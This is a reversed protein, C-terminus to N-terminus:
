SSQSLYRTITNSPTESNPKIRKQSRQSRQSTPTKRKESAQPTVACEQSSLMEKIAPKSLCTDIHENIKRQDTDKLPFECVPCRLPMQSVREETDHDTLNLFCSGASDNLSSDQTESATQLGSCQVSMNLNTSSTCDEPATDGLCSDIHSNIDESSSMPLAKQCVPCTIDSKQSLFASLTPQVASKQTNEEVLGALRVGMLRLRLPDPHLSDIEHRLLRFAAQQVPGLERTPLELTVSRTMVDFSVTKLKLTVVKGSIKDEALQECLRQCLESCKCFLDSPSSMEAFTEEVSKSKQSSDCRVLTSGLGLSVRLYFHVSSPSFFHGILGRKGWLDGCTRVGLCQLLQEQVAGIGPVKRISLTDVFAKVVDRDGILRYQDNPKRIDSCVKALFTNPAIGASATLGTAKFIEHRIQKVTAEVIDDATVDQNLREVLYETIDLYAEDLSVPMLNPDYHVLIRRIDASVATYKEFNPPVIVLSPCLKKAIFGPMAARVGFKRAEYNSTSLMGMSGVAMPVDRLAPNDRMEVAAYYADMDIHVIVRDLNRSREMKEALHNMKEEEPQIQAPSLKSLECLMAEVKKDIRQQRKQQHEYYPTGKSIEQIVKNVFEKDVGQLGAKTANLRLIKVSENSDM